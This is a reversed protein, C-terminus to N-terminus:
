SRRKNKKIKAVGACYESSDSSILLCTLEHVKQSKGAWTYEYSQLVPRHVRLIWTGITCSKKNLEFLLSSELKEEGSSAAATVAAARVVLLRWAFWCYSGSAVSM